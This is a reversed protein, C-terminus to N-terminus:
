GTETSNAKLIAAIFAKANAEHASRHDSHPVAGFNTIIYINNTLLLSCAIVVVNILIKQNM